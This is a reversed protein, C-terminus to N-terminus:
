GVKRATLTALAATATRRMQMAVSAGTDPTINLAAIEELAKVLDAHSNSGNILLAANALNEERSRGTDGHHSIELNDTKCRIYGCGDPRSELEEFHWPLETHGSM